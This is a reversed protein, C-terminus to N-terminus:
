RQLCARGWGDARKPEIGISSQVRAEIRWDKLALRKRGVGPNQRASLQEHPSCEVRYGASGSAANRSQVRVAREVRSVVEIRKVIHLGHIDRRGGGVITKVCEEASSGIRNK